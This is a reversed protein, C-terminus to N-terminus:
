FLPARGQVRRWASLQGLHISLHTTMLHAVVDGICEVPTDKFFEVNHPENMRAPDVRAAATAIQQRGQELKAVLEAKSPLPNQDEKPSMGRGFRKHWEAPAVRDGGLMRLAYDNAVVVHALIWAPPNGGSAIPVALEADDVDKLLLSLMGNMLGNLRVEREFM